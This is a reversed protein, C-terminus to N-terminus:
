LVATNRLRRPQQPGSHVQRPVGTEEGAAFSGARLPLSEPHGGSSSQFKGFSHSDDKEGAEGLQVGSRPCLLRPIPTTDLHSPGLLKAGSAHTSEEYAAESQHGLGPGLQGERGPAGLPQSSASALQFLPQRFLGTPLLRRPVCTDASQWRTWGDLPNPGCPHLFHCLSALVRVHLPRFALSLGPSTFSRSLPRPCFSLPASPQPSPGSSTCPCPSQSQRLLCPTTPFCLRPRSTRSSAPLAPHCATGPM